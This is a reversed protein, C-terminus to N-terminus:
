GLLRPCSGVTSLAFFHFFNMKAEQALFPLNPPNKKSFFVRPGKPTLQYYRKGDTHNSKKKLSKIQDVPFGAV